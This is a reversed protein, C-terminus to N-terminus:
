PVITELRQKTLRPRRTVPTYEVLVKNDNSLRSPSIKNDKDVDDPNEGRADYLYEFEASLNEKSTFTAIHNIDLLASTTPLDGEYEATDLDETAFDSRSADETTIDVVRGM